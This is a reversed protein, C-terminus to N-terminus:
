EDVRLLAELTILCREWIDRSNGFAAVQSAAEVASRSVGQASDRIETNALRLETEAVRRDRYLKDADMVEQWGAKGFLEEVDASPNESAYREKQELIAEPYTMSGQDSLFVAIHHAASYPHQPPDPPREAIEIAAASTAASVIPIQDQVKLCGEIAESSSRLALIVTMVAMDAKALPAIEAEATKILSIALEASRNDVIPVIKSLKQRASELAANRALRERLRIRGFLKLGIVNLTRLLLDRLEMGLGFKTDNYRPEFEICAACALPLVERTVWDAVAFARAQSLDDGKRSGELRKVFVDLANGLSDFDRSEALHLLFGRIVPDGSTVTLRQIFAAKDRIVRSSM